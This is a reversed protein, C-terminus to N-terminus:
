VLLRDYLVTLKAKLTEGFYFFIFIFVGANGLEKVRLHDLGYVGNLPSPIYEMVNRVGYILVGAAWLYLIIELFLRSSIKQTNEQTDIKKSVLDFVKSIFLAFIAYLM